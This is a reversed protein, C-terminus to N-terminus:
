VYKLAQELIMRPSYNVKLLYELAGLKKAEEETHSDELNTAILFKVTSLEPNSKVTKLVTLGDAKPLMLDLIVIHPLSSQIKVLAEEGDGATIIEFNMLKGQIVYLDRIYFDDEAVLIKKGSTGLSISDVMASDLKVKTLTKTM